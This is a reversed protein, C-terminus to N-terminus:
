CARRTFAAIPVLWLLTHTSAAVGLLWAQKASRRAPHEGSEVGCPRVVRAFLQVVRAGLVEHPAADVDAHQLVMDASVLYPVRRSARRTNDGNQTLLPEGAVLEHIGPECNPALLM